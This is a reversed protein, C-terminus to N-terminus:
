VAIGLRVVHMCMDFFRFGASGSNVFTVGFFLTLRIRVLGSRLIKRGAIIGGLVARRWTVARASAAVASAIASAVSAIPRLKASAASPAPKTATTAASAARATAASEALAACAVKRRGLVSRWLAFRAAAVTAWVTAAVPTAIASAAAIRITTAAVITARPTVKVIATRVSRTWGRWGIGRFFRKYQRAFRERLIAPPWHQFGGCTSWDRLRFTEFRLNFRVFRLRANGALRSWCVSRATRTASQGTPKEGASGGFADFGRFRIL